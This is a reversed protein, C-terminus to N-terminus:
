CGINGIEEADEKKPRSSCTRVQSLAASITARVCFKIVERKSNKRRIAM